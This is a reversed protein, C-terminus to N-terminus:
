EKQVSGSTTTRQIDAEVDVNVKLGQLTDEWGEEWESTWKKHHVRYLYWGFGFIDVGQSHAHDLVTKIENQIEKKMKGIVMRYTKPDELRYNGENGTLTGTARVSLSFTPKGKVIDFSQKLHNDIIQVTVENNNAVPFSLSKKPMRKRLWLIGRTEMENTTFSLREGKLVAFNKMRIEKKSKESTLLSTTEILPIVAEKGPRELDLLADRVTVDIRAKAMERIAEASFQEMRPQATLMNLGEGKSILLFTTLRSQPEILIANLSETIGRKALEEGIILVRRHPFYLKRSLRNQIDQVGQNINKGTGQAVLFPGEGSTGGGGGNSGPGGLSSPLPAQVTIRYNEKGVQDEATAVVIALDNIETRDWCGTLFILLSILVNLLSLKKM